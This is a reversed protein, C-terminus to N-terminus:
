ERCDACRGRLLIDHEDVQHSLREAVAGLAEELEDDAFPTVRGCERCVVHHHHEGSPDAAEYRASAGGLDLRHVLRLATLVELARYVSALGARRGDARLRDHIEQATLCCDEAALLEVVARRAGGARHGAQGLADEAHAAWAARDAGHGHGNQGQGTSM